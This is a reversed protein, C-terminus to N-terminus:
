FAFAIVEVTDRLIFSAYDYHAIHLLCLGSRRRTYREITKRRSAAWSSEFGLTSDSHGGAAAAAGEIDLTRVQLAHEWFPAFNVDARRRSTLGFEVVDRENPAELPRQHLISSLYKVRGVVASIYKRFSQWASIEVTM